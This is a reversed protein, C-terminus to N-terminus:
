SPALAQNAAVSSARRATRGAFLHAVGFALYAALALFYVGSFWQRAALEIAGAVATIASCPWRMM